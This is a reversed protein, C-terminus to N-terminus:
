ILGVTQKLLSACIESFVQLHDETRNWLIRIQLLPPFSFQLPDPTLLPFKLLPNLLADLPLLVNLGERSVGSHAQSNSSFKDKGETQEFLLTRLWCTM